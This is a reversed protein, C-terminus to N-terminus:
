GQEAFRCSSWRGERVRAAEGAGSACLEGHEDEERVLACGEDFIRPDSRIAAFISRSLNRLIELFTEGGSRVGNGFNGM